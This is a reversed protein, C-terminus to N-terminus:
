EKGEVIDIARNITFVFELSREVELKEVIEKERKKIQALAFDTIIDSLRSSIPLDEADKLIEERTM